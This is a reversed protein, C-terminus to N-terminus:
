LTWLNLLMIIVKLIGLMRSKGGVHIFVLKSRFGTKGASQLRPKMVEDKIWYKSFMWLLYPVLFKDEVILFNTLYQFILNKWYGKSLFLYSKIQRGYHYSFRYSILLTPFLFTSKIVMSIHCNTLYLFFSKRFMSIQFNTLYLFFSKGVM